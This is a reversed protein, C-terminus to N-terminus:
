TQISVKRRTTDFYNLTNTTTPVNGTDDKFLCHNQDVGTDAVQVVQGEGRLGKDWISRFFHEYM